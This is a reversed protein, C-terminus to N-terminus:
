VPSWSDEVIAVAVGDLSTKRVILKGRPSAILACPECVGDVGIQQAVWASPATVWSRCAVTERAIIRLPLNHAACFALLGPEDQKLDITAIERVEDLRRTGLAQLVAAIIREAAVDKRCGIGIVLPKVAETATTVVPVAGIIAAVRYALDNAGGEHGALLSIAFRGAEDLVVVAPDSHKDGILGDLFRVAVGTAGIIIWYDRQRYADAFQLRQSQVPEQWPRYVVADLRKHLVTGLAEAQARVLWIGTGVTM